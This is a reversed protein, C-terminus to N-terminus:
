ILHSLHFAGPLRGKNSQMESPSGNRGDSAQMEKEWEGDQRWSSDRRKGANWGACCVNGKRVYEELKVSISPQQVDCVKWFLMMFLPPYNCSLQPLFCTWLRTRHCKEMVPFKWQGQRDWSGLKSGTGMTPEEVEWIREVWRELEDQPGLHFRLNKIIDPYNQEGTLVEAM